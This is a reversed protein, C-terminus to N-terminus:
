LRTFYSGERVKQTLPNFFESFFITLLVIFFVSEFIFTYFHQTTKSIHYIKPKVKFKLYKDTSRFEYQAYNLVCKRVKIKYKWTHIQYCSDAVRSIGVHVLVADVIVTYVFRLIVQEIYLTINTINHTPWNWIIKTEILLCVIM